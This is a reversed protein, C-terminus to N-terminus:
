VKGKRRGAAKEERRRAAEMKGGVSWIADWPVSYRQRTGKPRLVVGWPHLEAVLPRLKRGARITAGTERILPSATSLATM